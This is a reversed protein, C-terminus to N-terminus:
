RRWLEASIYSPVLDVKNGYWSMAVIGYGIVKTQWSGRELEKIQADSVLTIGKLRREQVTM